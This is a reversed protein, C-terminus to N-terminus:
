PHFEEVVSNNPKNSPSKEAHRSRQMDRLFHIGRVVSSPKRSRNGIQVFIEEKDRATLEHGDLVRLLNNDKDLIMGFTQELYSALMMRGKEILEDRNQSALFSKLADRARSTKVLSLWNISAQRKSDTIIELVDGNM